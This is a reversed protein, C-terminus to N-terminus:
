TLLEFLTESYGVPDEAALGSMLAAQTYLVEAYKKARDTDHEYLDKLREFLKHDPNLELLREARIASDPQVTKMYKEMEFSTGGAATLCVPHSKLKPSLKVENIREGLTEKIFGLLDKNQEQKEQTDKKEDENELGLDDDNVSKFEKDKYNRMIQATFEDVQETFYLIEYGKERLAETQPLKSILSINEGTAFYIYKQESKMRTVYEDLTVPRGDNDSSFSSFFMILDQLLDKKMGFESAVGYKLQIGFTKHFEEYKGRDGSLMKALENKIKKEINNAIVKLERSHQLMERSINLSLDPSDVVGKVFRFHEPILDECREMIMVGSSYLQLGKQYDRTFYDYSAKAPIYLLAKYSVIGEADTHTYLLPKEFDYFKDRYFNQYDEEKLENRNRQWIPVMSNLTTLETKKETENVDPTEANDNDEKPVYIEKEMRIPYRIYDSYKKVLGEINHETVFRSYKENEDDDKLKIIVDTGWASREAKTITYGESGSSTWLYADDQGYARSIVQIQQAVMFASYFGVGFQGIIDPTNDAPNEGDKAPKSEALAEKFQLSGSKAIVGLNNELEDRTMGVGNDSLTLVRNEKDLIIDVAFDSRSMGADSDTLAIYCLKDLADSANSILERLFIEKHTYISNIMLDLLRKSESKFQKKPM